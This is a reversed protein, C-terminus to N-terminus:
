LSTPQSGGGHDSFSVITACPRSQNQLNQIVVGAAPISSPASPAPAISIPQMMMMAGNGAVGGMAPGTTAIRAHVYVNQDLHPTSNSTSVTSYPMLQLGTQPGEVKSDDIYVSAPQPFRSINSISTNKIYFYYAGIVLILISVLAILVVLLTLVLEGEIIKEESEDSGGEEEDEDEDEDEYEKWHEEVEEMYDTGVGYEVNISLLDVQM